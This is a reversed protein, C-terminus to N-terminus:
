DTPEWHFLIEVASEAPRRDTAHTSAGNANTRRRNEIALISHADRSQHQFAEESPHPPFQTNGSVRDRDAKHCVRLDRVPVSLKPPLASGSVYKRKGRPTGLRTIFLSDGLFSGTRM